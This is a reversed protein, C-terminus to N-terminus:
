QHDDVPQRWRSATWHHGWELQCYKPLNDVSGSPKSRNREAACPYEHQIRRSTPNHQSYRLVIVSWRNSAEFDGPILIASRSRSSSSSQSLRQPRLEPQRISKHCYHHCCHEGHMKDDHTGYNHQPESYWVAHIHLQTASQHPCRIRIFIGGHNRPLCHRRWLGTQYIKYNRAHRFFQNRDDPWQQWSNRQLHAPQLRRCRLDM